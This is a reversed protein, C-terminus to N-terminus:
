RRPRRLQVFRYTKRFSWDCYRLHPLSGWDGTKKAAKSVEFIISGVAKFDEPTLEELWAVYERVADDGTVTQDKAFRDLAECLEPDYPSPSEERQRPRRRRQDQVTRYEAQFERCWYGLGPLPGWDGTRRAGRATRFILDGVTKFDEDSLNYLWDGYPIIGRRGFKVAARIFRNLGEILEDQATSLLKREREEGRRAKRLVVNMGAYAPNM